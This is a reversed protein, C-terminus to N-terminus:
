SKAELCNPYYSAINFFGDQFHSFKDCRINSPFRPVIGAEDRSVYTRKPRQFAVATFLLSLRAGQTSLSVSVSEEFHAAFSYLLHM